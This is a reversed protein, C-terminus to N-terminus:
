RMVLEHFLQFWLDALVAQMPEENVSRRGIFLFVEGHLKLPKKNATALSFQEGKGYLLIGHTFFIKASEAFDYDLKENPLPNIEAKVKALNVDIAIRTFEYNPVLERSTPIGFHRATMMSKEIFGCFNGGQGIIELKKSPQQMVGIKSPHIDWRKSGSPNSATESNKDWTCLPITCMPLMKTTASERRKMIDWLADNFVYLSISCPSIVSSHNILYDTLGIKKDLRDMMQAIQSDNFRSLGRKKSETVETTELLKDLGLNKALEDYSVDSNNSM